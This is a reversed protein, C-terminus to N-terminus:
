SWIIYVEYGNQDDFYNEEIYFNRDSNKLKKNLNLEILEIFFNEAEAVEVEINNENKIVFSNISAPVGNQLELVNIINM